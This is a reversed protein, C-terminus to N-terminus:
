RMPFHAFASFNFQSVLDYAQFFLCCHLQQQLNRANENPVYGLRAAAGLVKQRTAETISKGPTNNLVFSVTTRSVDAERAVDQASIRNKAVRRVGARTIGQGLRGHSWPHLLAAPLFVCHRQTMVQFQEGASSLFVLAVLLDNWVWLFQYIAFSALAPISLPLSEM